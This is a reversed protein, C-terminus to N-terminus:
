YYVEGGRERVYERFYEQSEPKMNYVRWTKEGMYVKHGCKYIRYVHGHMIGNEDILYPEEDVYALPAGCYPCYHVDWEGKQPSSESEGKKSVDSTNGISTTNNVPKKHLFPLEPIKGMQIQVLAGITFGLAGVLIFCAIILAKTTKDM